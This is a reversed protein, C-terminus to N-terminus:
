KPEVAIVWLNTTGLNQGIHTGGQRWAIEGTKLTSPEERGDPMLHKLTAGSLCVVVRAKHTHQPERGGAPIRIDYVRSYRNELIVKYDPSLGAAGWTEPAGPTLFEIRALHLESSGTNRVPEGPESFHAKGTAFDVDVAPHAAAPAQEGPRLHFERVAVKENKLSEGTAASMVMAIVSLLAYTRLSIQM